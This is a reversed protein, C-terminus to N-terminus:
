ANHRSASLGPLLLIQPDAVFDLFDSVSAHGPYPGYHHKRDANRWVLVWAIRSAVPDSIINRWLKETWWRPQKVGEHGTETLAAVKSRAEALEVVIRLRRTLDTARGTRGLDHYDDLGFVDVYDDGPYYDLYHEASEIIDPSYCWILNNLQQEEHLYTVTFQWLAVYEARSAHPKGWWFWHGTHEHFPRFILPPPEDNPMGQGTGRVFNAFADLAQRYAGHVKGGPLCARVTPPGTAWANGGLFNDMHWSLTNIGGARHVQRMWQQMQGFDVDDINQQKRGLHGIEWGFVAPHQGCVDKVDSRWPHWDKWDVGYALTDQHGFLTHTPALEKLLAYLQYTAQSAQPNTM